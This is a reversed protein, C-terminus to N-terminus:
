LMHRALYGAAHLVASLAQCQALASVNCVTAVYSVFASIAGGDDDVKLDFPGM